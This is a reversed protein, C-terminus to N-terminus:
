RLVLHLLRQTPEHHPRLTLSRQLTEGAAVRDGSHFLAQGLNYLTAACEPRLTALVQLSPLARQIQGAEMMLRALDDLCCEQSTEQWAAQLHSEAQDPNGNGIEAIAVMFARHCRNESRAARFALERLRDVRHERFTHWAVERQAAECDPALSLAQEWHHAAEQTRGTQELAIALNHHLKYGTITNDVSQFHRVHPQELISQYQGIADESRGTQQLLVGYRFRLEVDDPYQKLGQRAQLLAQDVEGSLRLSNVLISWAKRVHSEEANSVRLCHELYGIAQRYMGADDCTMGLNFLVFPHDPHEQLDLQLIRFDRELKRRREEPSQRSGRHVVHIDRFEVSGGMRRIAPLIQEHIRHEFRLEPRNRFLKVHDVVTAQGSQGSPCHVQLVYGLCNLAHNSLVLDQLRQGQSAEMLDDSDMWFIWDGTAYRLSENRAASFDDCWPFEYVQAGLKRCLEPTRDTSGTDVVILEDVWPRISALCAEIISENDRVIMCLSLRNSTRVASTLSGPSQEVNWKEAFRRGNEQMVEALSIGSGQFTASGFHHILVHRAIKLEFGASLARRCFDDDEYCGIRFREDLGGIQDLVSRRFLLCFGVLRTTSVLEPSKRREWAVGDLSSLVAYETPVQQDGSVCNSVPGIMGIRPSSHLAELLSNLWGTTVICDNNLLLIQEGQAVQLGQNVAPAFGRNEANCIVKGAALSQLYEVTGDTSGNDIFILELPEDTRGLVSEVCMRTYALQNFTVVIITTLGFQGPAAKNARMLIQYAYFEEAEEQSLGKIHLKQLELTGSHPRSRVKEIGQCYVMRTESVSFGARFFLKELERRTLTRVHDEDLLGAAEYTWNGDALSEIVEVNRGNPVSVVVTGVSSLWGACKKLTELPDRLHELVDALVICDFSEPPFHSAPVDVISRCHVADLVRRARAAARFSPEIGTVRCTRSSRLAAGLRGSGCGIDLINVATEPILARVDPRHHEFYGAPKRRDPSWAEIMELVVDARHSYTHRGLVADYGAKAIQRRLTEEALLREIAQRLEEEGEWLVLEHNVDFLSELGNNFIRNTVIPLGCAAIEFIRMNIDGSISYNFGIRGRSWARAMEDFYAQGTWTQPFNRVLWLLWRERQASVINGVFVVDHDVVVSPMPRHLDPDCALPLWHVVRGLAESMRYADHKQAAFLLEADGFRRLCRNFGLHTDIAWAARPRLHDPIEYDLGDDIVVYFEVDQHPDTLNQGPQLHITEARQSIAKQLYSGTTDPRVQRDYILGVRM